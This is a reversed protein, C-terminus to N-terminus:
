VVTLYLAFSVLTSTQATGILKAQKDGTKFISVTYNGGNSSTCLGKNVGPGFAPLLGGM